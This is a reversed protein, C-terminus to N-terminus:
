NKAVKKTKCIDPIEQSWPLLDDIFKRDTDEEHNMMETLLFELYRFPNLGNAKATEVISYILASSQAGNITDIMKWTHKHLCFSRLSSETANNDLPVEGNELFVRLQKEHNLYYNIGKMTESGELLVKSEKINKIWAFFDEVLPKIMLERKYQREKASLTILQNDLHYIAGIKQIAQYAITNKEDVRATKKVTKLANAFYRRGHVHCFAFTIESHERDMKEYVSYADTVCVGRFGKLFREPHETKRTKQYDYLVMPAKTDYRGTRYVWMYSNSNAPRGDKSVKVPTEDQQIVSRQLLLEHMRMFVPSLYREGCRIMWNAMVQKSINVDNRQFEQAIRHLPLGNTYKANMISAVLSPTAISNRLLSKPRTARVIKDEKKSAYVCVHHEEVTYQAPEVRVRLFTEDPLTKWGNEGFLEILEEESLEHPIPVVPLRSLDEERKGKKKKRKVMVTELVEEPSPEVVFANEILAESENFIFSLQGDIVDMKESKRGYRDNQLLALQETMRDLKANVMELQDYMQDQFHLFLTVLMEKSCNNLEKETYKKSM